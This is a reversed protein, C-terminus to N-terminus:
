FDGTEPPPTFENPDTNERVTNKAKLDAYYAVIFRIAAHRGQRVAVEGGPLVACRIAL